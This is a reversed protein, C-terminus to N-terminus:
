KLGRQKKLENFLKEGANGTKELPNADCYKDMWLFISQYNRDRLIDIDKGVALGSLYGLLWSKNQVNDNFKRGDIWSDCDSSGKVIITDENEANASIGIAFLVAITLPKYINKMIQTELNINSKKTQDVTKKCSCLDKINLM